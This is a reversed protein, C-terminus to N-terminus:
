RWCSRRRASRSIPPSRPWTPTASSSTCGATSRRMATRSTAPTSSRGSSRPRWGSRRRSSTPGSASRSVAGDQGVGGTFESGVKGAGCFVQRTVFHPTIQSVIRGFPTARDVLYNEHCGYSNGKGDSNNKYTLRDRQRRRAPAQRRGHQRAVIEEAARDWQVVEYANCASPHRSRPIPTISTTAPATPSCRTSSTRRSRPRSCRRTAHLWARRQRPARGRLGLRGQPARRQRLRQDARQLRRRSELGGGRVLIGYETEIGCVKAIAM